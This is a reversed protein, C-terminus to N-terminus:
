MKNIDMFNDSIIWLIKKIKLSEFLQFNYLYNLILIFIIIKCIIRITLLLFYDMERCNFWKINKMM